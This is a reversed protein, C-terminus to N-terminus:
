MRMQWGGSFEACSKHWQEPAFGLGTLVVGIRRDADYGGAAEFAEQADALRDAAKEDGDAMAEAWVQMDQEARLISTMQSRAEDWVSRTSGSVATQELYGLEVKPAV